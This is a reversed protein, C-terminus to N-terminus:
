PTAARTDPKADPEDKFGALDALNPESIALVKFM